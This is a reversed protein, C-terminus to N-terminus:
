SWIKRTVLALIEMQKRRKNFWGRHALALNGYVRRVTDPVEKSLIYGSKDSPKYIGTGFPYTEGNQVKMLLCSGGYERWLIVLM